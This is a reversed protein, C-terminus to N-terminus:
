IALTAQLGTASNVDLEGRLLKQWGFHPPQEAAVRGGRQQSGSARATKWCAAQPSCCNSSSWTQCGCHSIDNWDRPSTAQGRCQNPGLAACEPCGRRRAPRTTAPVREIQSAVWGLQAPPNEKTRCPRSTPACPPKTAPLQHHQRRHCSRTRAQRQRHAAGPM